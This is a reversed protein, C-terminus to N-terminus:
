KTGRSQEPCFETAPFCSSVFLFVYIKLWVQEKVVRPATTAGPEGVNSM